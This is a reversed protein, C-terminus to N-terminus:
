QINFYLSINIILPKSAFSSDEFHAAAPSEIKIVNDPNSM